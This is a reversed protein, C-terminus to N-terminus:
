RPAHRHAAVHPLVVRVADPAGGVPSRQAQHKLFGAQELVQRHLAVQVETQLAHGGGLPAHRQRLRDLQQAQAGHQCTARRLQRAALALPHRDRARQGGARAQQQHVLRQGRQIGCALGFQQGVELPQRALQAQRHQVDGMREVFHDAQGVVQHQQAIALDDRVARDLRQQRARVHRAGLAIGGARQHACLHQAEVRVVLQQLHREIVTDQVAHVAGAGRRARRALAHAQPHLRTVDAQAQGGRV